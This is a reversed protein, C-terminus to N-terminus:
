QFHDSNTPSNKPENGTGFCYLFGSKSAIFIRGQYAVPTSEFIGSYFAQERLQYREVVDFIHIGSYGAACIRKDIFIPTSITPGIAAMSLILPTPYETQNDPGLVRLTDNLKQHDVLYLNGDLATICALSRDFSNKYGDNVAVSGVIGGHWNAFERNQTPLYWVVSEAPSKFPNIKMAGGMGPIFEKELTVILCSDATVVPSGNMDAGLYLDWDIKRSKMNYGYVHGSGTTIYIHDGIKCPSSEIVLEGGHKMMDEANFLAYEKLIPKYSEGKSGTVLDHTGPTLVSFLGNELGIFVTDNWILASGDVDRSFSSGKKVNLRWVEQGTLYSIARYSPITDKRLPNNLGLRAGQLILIRNLPNQPHPDVWITGTGKLVDDYKYQWVLEGTLADLKKLTHDYCGQVLFPHGHETIILPQGTWGAGYWTKVERGTPNTQGGGIEFKWLIDLNPPISDGYYNRSDGGLFSGSFVQISDVPEPQISDQIVPVLQVKPQMLELQRFQYFLYALTAGLLLIMTFLIFKIGRYM